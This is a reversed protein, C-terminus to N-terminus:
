QNHYGALKQPKDVRNQLISCEIIWLFQQHIDPVRLLIHSCRLVTPLLIYELVEGPEPNIRFRAPNQFSVRCRHLAVPVLDACLGDSHLLTLTQPIDAGQPSLLDTFDFYLCSRYSATTIETPCSGTLFSPLCETYSCTPRLFNTCSVMLCPLNVMMTLLPITAKILM